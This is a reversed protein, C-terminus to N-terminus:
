GGGLSASSRGIILAQVIPIIFKQFEWVPANTVYIADDPQLSFRRALLLSEAKAFDLHFVVPRAAADEGPGLRFVFVGRPNATRDDLGGSQGLGDLLSMRASVMDQLGPKTVAGMAVFRRVNTEIVVQDGPRLFVPPENTLGLYPLRRVGGGSYVVVDASYAPVAPGGARAVADLVSLPGDLTTVRGPAKVDGTVLVSQRPSSVIQVHVQPDVAKGDLARRITTEVQALGMGAVRVRGAYPLTITGAEDVRLATFNSGGAALPAFLGGDSREFVSAQLVDGPMLGFGPMGGANAPADAVRRRLLYPSITAPTIEVLDYSADGASPDLIAGTTPGSRATIGCASCGLLAFVALARAYRRDAAVM